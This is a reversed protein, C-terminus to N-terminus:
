FLKKSHAAALAELTVSDEILFEGVKTRRLNFLTAPYGLRRGLEEALSRIYTGSGVAFRVTVLQFQKSEYIVSDNARIEAADVRMAREPVGAAHEGKKKAIRARKYMPVGDVKIASYASVSLVIDGLLSKLTTAITDLPIQVPVEKEELVEGEMDGTSRRQGILIEAIYEKDLKVLSTLTKTGSGVGIVMLGTALPDLTGAHGAKKVELIRRVRAVVGFSTLGKPKDILLINEPVTM